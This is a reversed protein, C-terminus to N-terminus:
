SRAEPPVLSRALETHALRRADPGPGAEPALGDEPAPCAPTLSFLTAAKRGQQLLTLVTLRELAM